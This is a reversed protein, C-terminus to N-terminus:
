FGTAAAPDCSLRLVQIAYGARTAIDTDSFRLEIERLDTLHNWYGREVPETTTIYISPGDTRVAIVRSWSLPMTRIHRERVSVDQFVTEYYDRAGPNSRTNVMVLRRYAVRASVAEALLSLSGSCRDTSSYSRVTFRQTRNRIDQYESFERSLEIDIRGDHLTAAEAVISLFRQANEPTQQSPGSQTAAMVPNMALMAFLIALRGGSVSNRIM